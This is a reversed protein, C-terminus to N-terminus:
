IVLQNSYSGAFGISSKGLASRCLAAYQGTGSRNEGAFQDLHVSELARTCVCPMLKQRLGYNEGNASKM